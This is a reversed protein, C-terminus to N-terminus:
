VSYVMDGVANQLVEEAKFDLNLWDKIAEEPLLVPMRNHIFAISEVPEKTLVSFVPARHEIRYIGALFVANSDAVSLKYKIKEKGSKQWEYYSSCPIICRHKEMSEAFMPKQSATESRTNILLSGSPLHYGWNMAFPQMKLSRNNALVAATNSPCVDGVTVAKGATRLTDIAYRLTENDSEEDTYFRCCM